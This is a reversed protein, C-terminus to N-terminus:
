QQHYDTSGGPKGLKEAAEVCVSPYMNDGYLAVLMLTSTLVLILGSADQINFMHIFIEQQDIWCCNTLKQM